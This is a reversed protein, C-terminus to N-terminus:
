NDLGEVGLKNAGVKLFKLYRGAEELLAHTDLQDGGPVIGALVTVMKRIKEHTVNEM